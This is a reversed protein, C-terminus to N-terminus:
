RPERADVSVVSFPEPRAFGCFAIHADFRAACVPQM